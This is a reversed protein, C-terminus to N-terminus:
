KTKLNAIEEQSIYEVEFERMVEDFEQKLRPIRTKLWNTIFQKRFKEKIKEQEKEPLDLEKGTESLIVPLEVEPVEPIVEDEFLRVYSKFTELDEKYWYYGSELYYMPLGDQDALHFEILPALHPAKEKILDHICGCSDEEWRGRQSDRRITEGTISFHPQSNGLIYHMGYRVTGRYTYYEDKWQPLSYTQYKEIQTSKYM